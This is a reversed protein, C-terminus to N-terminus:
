YITRWGYLDGADKACVAVIDKEGVGIAGQTVWFMGRFTEGCSPRVITTNLRVGGDVELRIQSASPAGVGIGVNGSFAANKWRQGGVGVDLSNDTGPVLNTDFTAANVRAIATRFNRTLQQQPNTSNYALAFSIKVTDLGPSNSYKNFVLSTAKVKSTNLPVGSAGSEEVIIDDGTLKIKTKSTLADYNKMYLVLESGGDIPVEILSAETIYREINRLVFNAQNGVETAAIEQSDIRLFVGLIGILLTSIIAFLGSYILVEM